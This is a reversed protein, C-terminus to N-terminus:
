RKATDRLWTAFSDETLAGEALKVMQEVMEASPVPLAQGNLKLFLLACHLATRKNGDLFPHNRAIGFAYADALEYPDDTEYSLKNQPHALASELLGADRVGTLGGFLGIQEDHLAVVVRHELFRM